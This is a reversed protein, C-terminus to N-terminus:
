EALCFTGSKIMGELPPPPPPSPPIVLHSLFESKSLLVNAKPM